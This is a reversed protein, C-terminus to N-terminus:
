WLYGWYYKEDTALTTFFTTFNAKLLPPSSDQYSQSSYSRRHLLQGAPQKTEKRTLNAELDTNSKKRIGPTNKPPLLIIAHNDV